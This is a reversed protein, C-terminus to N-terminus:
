RVSMLVDDSSSRVLAGSLIVGATLILRAMEGILLVDVAFRQYLRMQKEGSRLVAGCCLVCVLLNGFLYSLFHQYFLEADHARDRSQGNVADTPRHILATAPLTRTSFVLFEGLFSLAALALLSAVLGTRVTRMEVLVPHIRSLRNAPPTPPIVSSPCPRLLLAAHHLLPAALVLAPVVLWLLALLSRSDAM